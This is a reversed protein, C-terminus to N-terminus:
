QGFRSLNILSTPPHLGRTAPAGSADRTLTDNRLLLTEDARSLTELRPLAELM